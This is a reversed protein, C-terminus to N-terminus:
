FYGMELVLFNWDKNFFIVRENEMWSRGIQLLTWFRGSAEPCLSTALFLPFIKILGGKMKFIKQKFKKGDSPFL